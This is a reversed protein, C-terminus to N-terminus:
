YRGRRDRKYTKGFKNKHSPVKRKTLALEFNLPETLPLVLENVLPRSREHWFYLKGEGPPLNELTFKGDSDVEAFFPTDLVLIHGVMSQHVNCYVRVLGSNEFRYNEGDGEGYLGVDFASKRTTSFVNHLIPDFNPFNVTAGVTIPLVRPVFQKRQTAMQYAEPIEPLPVPQAPRYYVVVNKVRSVPKDKDLVALTGSIELATVPGSLLLCLMLGFQNIVARLSKLILERAGVDNSGTCNSWLFAATKAESLQQLIQVQPKWCPLWAPKMLM